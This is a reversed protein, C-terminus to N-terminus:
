APTSSPAVTRRCAAPGLVRSQLSVVLRQPAMRRIAASRGCRFGGFRGRRGGIWGDIHKVDRGGDAVHLGDRIDQRDDCITDAVSM